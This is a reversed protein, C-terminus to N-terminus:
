RMAGWASITNSSGSIHAGDPTRVSFILPDNLSGSQSSAGKASIAYTQGSMLDVAIWDADNRYELNGRVVGGLTVLGETGTDDAYEGNIVRVTYYTSARPATLDLYYTGDEPATFEVV